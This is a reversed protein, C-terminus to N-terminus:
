VQVLKKKLFKKLGGLSYDALEHLLAKVHNCYGSKGAPRSCDASSVMSPARTISVIIKRLNKKMSAKCLSEVKFLNKTKTTYISDTTLFREEKFKRRRVLTKIIPLGHIKGSSQRHKEIEKVTFNSIGVLSKSWEIEESKKQSEEHEYIVNIVAAYIVKKEHLLFDQEISYDTQLPLEIDLCQLLSHQDM